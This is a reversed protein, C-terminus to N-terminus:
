VRRKRQRRVSDLGGLAGGVAGGTVAGIAKAKASGKVVNGTVFGLGAGPAAGKMTDVLATLKSVKPKPGLLKAKNSKKHKAM